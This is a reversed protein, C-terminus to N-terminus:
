GGVTMTVFMPWWSLQLAFLPPAPLLAPIVRRLVRANTLRPVLACVAWVWFVAAWSAILWSLLWFITSGEMATYREAKEVIDYLVGVGIAVVMSGTALHALVFSLTFPSDDARVTVPATAM